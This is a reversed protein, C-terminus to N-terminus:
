MNGKGEWIGESCTGEVKWFEVSGESCIGEVKRFERVAHERSREM